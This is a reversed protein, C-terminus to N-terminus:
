CCRGLLVAADRTNPPTPSPVRSPVVEVFLEFSDPTILESSKVLDFTHARSRCLVLGRRHRMRTPREASVMALMEALMHLLLINRSKM